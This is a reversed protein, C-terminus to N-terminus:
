GKVSYVYKSLGLPKGARTKVSLWGDKTCNLGANVCVTKMQDISLKPSYTNAVLTGSQALLRSAVEVLEPFSKELQWRHGKKVIGFVPPDMMILDYSNGRRVERLAFKLADEEVWHISDVGNIEGNERATKLISRSADVHYVESGFKAAVVSAAGTYGFLNLFKSGPKLTQAIFKWNAEQEPFLGVHKYKGLHLLFKLKEDNVVYDCVWNQDSPRGSNQWAAEKKKSEDYFFDQHREWEAHNLVPNATALVEPRNLIFQGFRELKRGNGFDILEYDLGSVTM